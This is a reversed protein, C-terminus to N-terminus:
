TQKLADIYEALSEFQSEWFIRYKSIWESANKMPSADLHCIRFKGDRKQTLLGAKELVRLHKSIAPPTVDYPKALDSVSIEDEALRKLIDRGIPDALAHFVVDLESTKYNVM